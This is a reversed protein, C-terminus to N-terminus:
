EPLESRHEKKCFPVIKSGGFDVELPSCFPWGIVNIANKRMIMGASLKGTKKIELWRAIVECTNKSAVFEM